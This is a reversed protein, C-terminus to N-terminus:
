ANQKRIQAYKKLFAAAYMVEEQEKGSTPSVDGKDV